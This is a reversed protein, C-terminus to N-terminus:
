PRIIKDKRADVLGLKLRGFYLWGIGDGICEIGVPEGCLLESVYYKKGKWRIEGNSRIRRIEWTKDYGMELGYPMGRNSAVYCEAPCKGGLAQHPRVENYEKRFADFRVQQKKFDYEPPLATEAKLTRHMREHRGNQQPCGVAIREPLIGLKLWGISLRSLGGIGTGAFPQGNDTRIADPLGYEYFLREFCKEADNLKTSTLADCGLLYRSFNDSVTLPYCYQQNGLRFQGKFDASWVRNAGDCHGLPTTYGPVHRRMRRTKVLGHRKLLEGMTSTAPWPVHPEHAQLWQKLKYPGWHPHQHKLNVIQNQMEQPLQNPHHHRVHSRPTFCAEGESEYRHILAYGTKRSIQYRWCLESFSSDDELWHAIFKVKEDKPNTTKWGM